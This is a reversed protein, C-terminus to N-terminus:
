QGWLLQTSSASKTPCTADASTQICPSKPSADCCGCCRGGKSSAQPAGSPSDLQLPRGSNARVQGHERKGDCNRSPMQGGEPRERPIPYTLAPTSQSAM